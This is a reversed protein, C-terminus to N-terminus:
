CPPPLTLAGGSSVRLSLSLSAAGKQKGNLHRDNRKKQMKNKAPSASPKTEKTQKKKTQFLFLLSLSLSLVGDHWQRFSTNAPFLTTTNHALVAVAVAVDIPWNILLCSRSTLRSLRRRSSLANM